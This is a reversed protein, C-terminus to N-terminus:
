AAAQQPEPPQIAYIPVDGLVYAYLNEVAVIRGTILDDTTTIDIKVLADRIRPMCANASLWVMASGDAGIRGLALTEIGCSQLQQALQEAAAIRGAQANLGEIQEFHLAGLDGALKELLSM